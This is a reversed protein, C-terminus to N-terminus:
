LFKYTGPIKKHAVVPGLVCSINGKVTPRMAPQVAAVGMCIHQTELNKGAAAWYYNILTCVTIHSFVPIVEPARFPMAYDFNIPTIRCNALTGEMPCFNRLM